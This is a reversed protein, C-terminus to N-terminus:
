ISCRSERARESPTLWGGGDGERGTGVGLVAMACRALTERGVVGVLGGTDARGNDCAVSERARGPSVVVVVVVVVPPPDRGAVGNFGVVDGEKGVGEGDEFEGVSGAVLTGGVTGPLVVCAGVALLGNLTEVFAVREVGVVVVVVVVVVLPAVM